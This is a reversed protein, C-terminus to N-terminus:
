FLVTPYHKLRLKRCTQKRMIHLYNVNLATYIVQMSLGTDPLGTQTMSMAPTSRQRQQQDMERLAEITGMLGRPSEAPSTGGISTRQGGLLPLIHYAYM